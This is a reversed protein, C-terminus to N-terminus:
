QLTKQSEWASAFLERFLKRNEKAAFTNFQVAFESRTQRLKAQLGEILMSMALLTEGTGNEQTQMQSRIENISTIQVDYDQHDGLNTQLTKLM